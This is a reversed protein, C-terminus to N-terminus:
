TGEHEALWRKARANPCEGDQLWVHEQCYGHHDFSCEGPDTLDRLIDAVADLAAAHEKTVRVLAEALRARDGHLSRADAEATEVRAVMGDWDTVLAQPNFEIGFKEGKRLLRVRGAPLDRFEDIASM